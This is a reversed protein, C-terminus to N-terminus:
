LNPYNIYDSFYYYVSHGAFFIVVAAAITAPVLYWRGPIYRKVLDSPVFLAMAMIFMDAPVGLLMRNPSIGTTVLLPVWTLVWWGLVILYRRNRFSELVCRGLGILLLAMFWARAPRWINDYHMQQHRHNFFRKGNYYFEYLGQIREPVMQTLVGKVQYQPPLTAAQGGGALTKDTLLFQEGRGSIYMLAVEKNGGETLAYGWGILFVASCILPVLHFRLFARSRILQCLIILAGIGALYRVTSYFFPVIAVCLILPVWASRKNEFAIISSFLIIALLLSLTPGIYGGTRGFAIVYQQAGVLIGIWLALDKRFFRRVLEATLVPALATLLVGPLRYGFFGDGVVIRSIKVLILWIPANVSQNSDNPRITIFEKLMQGWPKELIPLYMDVWAEFLELKPPVVDLQFCYIAVFALYLITNEFARRSM